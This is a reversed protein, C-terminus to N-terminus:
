QEGGGGVVQLYKCQEDGGGDVKTNAPSVNSHKPLTRYLEQTRSTTQTNIPVHLINNSFHAPLLTTYTPFPSLTTHKTPVTSPHHLM